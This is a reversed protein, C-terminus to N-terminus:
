STLKNNSLGPYDILHILEEIIIRLDEKILDLDQKKASFRRNHASLDGLKKIKPLSSITNRSLTWKSENILLAILDSLYYFHGKENKIKHSISNHEFCEIILTEILKRTMVLSADYLSTNYCSIAQNGMNSIYGRTNILLETPFLCDYGQNSYGKFDIDGNSNNNLQKEQYKHIEEQKSFFADEMSNYDMYTNFASDEVTIYDYSFGKSKSGASNWLSLGENSFLKFSIRTIRREENICDAIFNLDFENNNVDNFLEKKIYEFIKNGIIFVEKEANIAVVGRLTIEVMDRILKDDIKSPKFNKSISNLTKLKVHKYSNIGDHCKLHNWCELLWIKEEKTIEIRPLEKITM